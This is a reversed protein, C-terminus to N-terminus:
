TISQTISYQAIVTQISSRSIPISSTLRTMVIIVDDNLHSHKEQYPDRSM